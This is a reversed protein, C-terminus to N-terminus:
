IEAESRAQQCGRRRWDEPRVFICRSVSVWSGSISLSPSPSPLSLSLPPFSPSISLPPLSFPISLSLSRSSHSPSLSPFTFYLSLILPLYLPPCLIRCICLISLCLCKSLSLSSLPFSPSLRQSSVLLCLFLSIDTLPSSSCQSHTHTHTHSHSHTHTHTHTFTNQRM